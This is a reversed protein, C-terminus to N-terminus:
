TRNCQETNHIWDKNSVDRRWRGVRMTVAENFRSPNIIVL